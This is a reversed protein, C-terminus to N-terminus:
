ESYPRIVMSGFTIAEGFDLGLGNISCNTKDSVFFGGKYSIVLGLQVKLGSYNGVVNGDCSINFDGSGEHFTLGYSKIKVNYYEGPIDVNECMASVRDSFGMGRDEQYIYTSACNLSEATAGFSFVLVFLALYKKM